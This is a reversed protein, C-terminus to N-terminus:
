DILEYYNNGELTMEVSCGRFSAIQTGEGLYKLLPGTYPWVARVEAQGDNFWTKLVDGVKVDKGQKFNPKLSNIGRLM